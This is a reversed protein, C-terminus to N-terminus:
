VALRLFHLGEGDVTPIRVLLVLWVSLLVFDIEVVAARHNEVREYLDLVFVVGRECEAPRAALTDTEHAIFMSPDFPRAHRVRIEVSAEAIFIKGSGCMYTTLSRTGSM